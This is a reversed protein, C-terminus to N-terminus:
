HLKDSIAGLVNEKCSGRLDGEPLNRVASVGVKSHLANFLGERTLGIETAANLTGDASVSIKAVACIELDSERLDVLGHDSSRKSGLILTDIGAPEIEGTLLDDGLNLNLNSTLTNVALITVPHVDPVLKGECRLLLTSVVLHNTVGGLKGVDGIGQEGGDRAGARGSTDGVLDASGAIGERLCGEIDGEKEPEASVRSKSKRKNSKLVV